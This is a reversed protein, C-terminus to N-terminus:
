ARQRDPATRTLRRYLLLAVALTLFISLMEGGDEIAELARDLVAWRGEIMIHLMDVGIGFFVLLAFIAAFISGFKRAESNSKWFGWFLVSVLVAGAAGWALLEGVDQERLGSPAPLALHEVLYAGVQEHISLADDMLVFAFMVAWAFYAPQRTVLAIGILLVTCGAAQFYNFIEPYGSEAGLAFNEYVLGPLVERGIGVFILAGILFHIAIFTANVLLLGLIITRSTRDRRFEARIDSIADGFATRLRQPPSFFRRSVIQGTEM